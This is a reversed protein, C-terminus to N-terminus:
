GREAGKLGLHQKTDARDCAEKRSDKTVAPHHLIDAEGEPDSPPCQRRLEVMPSKAREKQSRMNLNDSALERSLPSTFSLRPGGRKLKWDKLKQHMHDFHVYENGCFYQDKKPQCARLIEAAFPLNSSQAIWRRWGATIPQIDESCAKERPGGRVPM